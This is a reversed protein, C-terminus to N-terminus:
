GFCLILNIIQADLPMLDVHLTPYSCRWNCQNTLWFWTLDLQCWHIFHDKTPQNVSFQYKSPHPAVSMLSPQINCFPFALEVKKKIYGKVNVYGILRKWLTLTHFLLHVVWCQSSATFLTLLIFSPHFMQLSEDCNHRNHHVDSNDDDANADEYWSMLITM